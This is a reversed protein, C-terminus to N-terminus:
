FLAQFAISYKPGTPSVLRNVAKIQVAGEVPVGNVTFVNIVFAPLLTGVFALLERRQKTIRGLPLEIANLKPRQITKAPFTHRLCGAM